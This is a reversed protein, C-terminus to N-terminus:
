GVRLSVGSFAPSLHGHEEGSRLRNRAARLERPEPPGQDKSKRLHKKETRKCVGGGGLGTRM